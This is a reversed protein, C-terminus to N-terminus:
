KKLGNLVTAIVAEIDTESTTKGHQYNGALLSVLPSMTLSEFVLQSVNRIQNNRLLGQYVNIVNASSIESYKRAEENFMGLNTQAANFYLLGLPHSKANNAFTRMAVGIKEFNDDVSKMNENIGYDLEDKVQKYIDSIMTEKDDYYVYMTSPSINAKKAIKSMSLGALGDSVTLEFVAEQLAKLKQSDIKRM